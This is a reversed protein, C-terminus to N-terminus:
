PVVQYRVRRKGHVYREHTRVWVVRPQSGRWPKGEAPILLRYHGIVQTAHRESEDLTYSIGSPAQADRRVHIRHQLSIRVYVPHTANWAAREREEEKEKRTKHGRRSRIHLRRDIITHKAGEARLMQMMVWLLQTWAQGDEYCLCGSSLAAFADARQNLRLGGHQDRHTAALPCHATRRCSDPYYLSWSQQTFSYSFGDQSAQAEGTGIRVLTFGESTKADFGMPVAWFARIAYEHEKLVGGEWEIWLPLAPLDIPPPLTKHALREATELVIELAEATLVFIKAQDLQALYHQWLVEGQHSRPAIGGLRLVEDMQVRGQEGLAAARFRDYHIDKPFALRTPRVKGAIPPTGAKM